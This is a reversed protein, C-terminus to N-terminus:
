GSAYKALNALAFPNSKRILVNENGKQKSYLGSFTTEKHENSSKNPTSAMHM